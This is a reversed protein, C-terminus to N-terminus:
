PRPWVSSAASCSCMFTMSLVVRLPPSLSALATGPSRVRVLDRGPLPPRMIGELVGGTSSVGIPPSSASASSIMSRITLDAVCPGAWGLSLLLDLALRLDKLRVRFFPRVGSSARAKPSLSEGSPYIPDERRRDDNGHFCRSM